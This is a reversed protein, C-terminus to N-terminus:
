TPSRLKQKYSLSVDFIIGGHSAPARDPSRWDGYNATLVRDHNRPVFFRHGCFDAEVLDEMDERRFTHRPILGNWLACVDVSAGGRDSYRRRLAEGKAFDRCGSIEKGFRRREEMDDPIADLPFIDMFIGQNFSMGREFEWTLMGTTESNRLQGHHRRSGPDTDETQFFYPHTFETFSIDCLRDYDCRMMVVDIDDDWPIFQGDRACGLLTGGALSYKIGNGRCVQDFKKLLDLEVAWVQKRKRSVRFDCRTEEDFFGDPLNITRLEVM